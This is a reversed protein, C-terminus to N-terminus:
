SPLGAAVVPQRADESRVLRRRIGRVLIRSAWVPKSRDTGRRDDGSGRSRASSPPAEVTRDTSSLAVYDVEYALEFSDSVCLSDRHDLGSEAESPCTLYRM